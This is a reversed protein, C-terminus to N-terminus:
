GKLLHQIDMSMLIFIPHTNADKEELYIAKFGLKQETIRTLNNFLIEAKFDYLHQQGM